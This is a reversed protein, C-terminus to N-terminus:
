RQTIPELTFQLTNPVCCRTVVVFRVPTSMDDSGLALRTFDSSNWEERGNSIREEGECERLEESERGEDGGGADVVGEEGM